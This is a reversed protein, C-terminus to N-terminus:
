AAMTEPDLEDLLSPLPCDLVAGIMRMLAAEVVRIVGDSTIAAFLGKIFRAKALPALDRLKELAACVHQLDCGERAVPTIRGALGMEAAGAAFAKAADEARTGEHACGAHAVMSLMLAVEPALSELAKRGGMASKRPELQSRVFSVYAFRYATIRRDARVVADLARVLDHREKEDQDRLEALALDLVPLHWTRPLTRGVSALASATAALHDFRAARLAEIEQALAKDDASLILAVVLARSGGKTRLADRADGPLADLLATAVRVDREGVTGALAVAENPTLKWDQDSLARRGAVARAEAYATRQLEAVTDPRRNRYDDGKFRPLLRRIREAVLPHTSLAREEELYVAEAFFLHSVDEVNPHLVFSHKRRAQDLAGALGEPNRTFQVSGADALFERERAVMAKIIRGAVLGAYGVVTLLIGVIFGGLIGLIGGAEEYQSGESTGELAVRLMHEGAAGIFLLGALIGIMRLNLAMDGNVIHSFEHGIVAQLEDRNLTELVGRTVVIVCFSGDYGAAFSNIGGAQDMVYVSPVRTGAAIAMEQVVNLLRREAPTANVPVVRRAGMMQAVAQGGGSRLEISKRISVWAITAITGVIAIGHVWGPIELARHVFILAAVFVFAVVAVDIVLVIVAMAVIFLVVLLRSNRRAADQREFFNM